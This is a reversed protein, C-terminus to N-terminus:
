FCWIYWWFRCYKCWCYTMQHIVKTIHFCFHLRKLLLTRVECIVFKHCGRGYPYGDLANLANLEKESATLSLLHAQSFGTFNLLPLQLTRCGPQPFGLMLVPQTSFPNLPSLNLPAPQHSPFCLGTVHVQLESLWSWGPCCWFNGAPWPLHNDGEAGTLGWRFHEIWCFFYISRKSCTM